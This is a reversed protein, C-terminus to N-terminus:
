NRKTAAPFLDKRVTVGLSAGNLDVGYRNINSRNQIDYFRMTPQIFVSNKIHIAYGFGVYYGSLRARLFDSRSRAYRIIETDREVAVEFVNMSARYGSGMSIGVEPIFQNRKGFRYNVGLQFLTRNLIYSDMEFFSRNTQGVFYNGYADVNGGFIATYFVDRPGRMIQSNSIFVDGKMHLNKWLRREYMFDISKGLVEPFNDDAHVSAMFSISQNSKKIVQAAISTSLMLLLFSLIAILKRPSANNFNYLGM